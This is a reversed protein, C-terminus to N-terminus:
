KVSNIGDLSVEDKGVKLIINKGQHLISSVIGSIPKKTLASIGEIRKGLLSNAETAQSSQLLSKMEKNLNSIQELSYFQAMQAIFEKDEMPKTPDQHRLQTVLLKLFSEKGMGNIGPSKGKNLKKNHFDAERTAKAKQEPTMKMNLKVNAQFSTDM